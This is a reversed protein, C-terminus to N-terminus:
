RVDYREFRLFTMFAFVSAWIIMSTFAMAASTLSELLPEPQQQRSFVKKITEQVLAGGEQPPLDWRRRLADNMMDRGSRLFTLYSFYASAGTGALDSSGFMLAGAPSLSALFKAVSIQYSKRALYDDTLQRDMDMSQFMAERANPSEFISRAEPHALLEKKITQQQAEYLRANLQNYSPAPAIIKATLVAANPLALVLMGWALLGTVVATKTRTTITSIFMGIYNFVLAYLLSMGFVLTMRAMDDENNEIGNVSILYIIASFFAVTFPVILSISSGLVKGIILERRRVPYALIARLTGAEKERTVSDLSFFLAFFSLLLKIAFAFDPIDFLALISNEDQQRTGIRVGLSVPRDVESDMGKVLVSLPHPRQLPADHGIGVGHFFTGNPMQYKVIGGTEPDQQAAQNIAWNDLRQRYDLALLHASILFLFLMSFFFVPIKYSRFNAVIENKAILWTYSFTATVVQPRFVAKARVTSINM